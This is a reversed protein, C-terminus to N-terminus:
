PRRRQLREGRYHAWVQNIVSAARSRAREHAISIDADAQDTAESTRVHTREIRAHAEAREEARFARLMDDYSSGDGLMKIVKIFLPTLDLILLFGRIFWVEDATSSSQRELQSLARERALLGTDGTIVSSEAASARTSQAALMAIESQLQDIRQRDLPKAAALEAEATAALQKYHACYSGCGPKHTTSCSPTNAECLALFSNRNITNHLRNEGARIGNIREEDQNIKANYGNQTQAVASQQLAANSRTMYSNIDVRNIWLMMPEAIQIALMVTLAIRPLIAPALWKRTHGATQYILPEIVCSMFLAWLVGVWWLEGVPKSLWFSAAVAFMFGSLASLVAVALGLSNHFRSESQTLKFIRLDLGVFWATAFRPKPLESYSKQSDAMISLDSVRSCAANL